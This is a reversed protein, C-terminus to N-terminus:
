LGRVLPQLGTRSRRRCRPRRRPGRRWRTGPGGGSGCRARGPCPCPGRSWGPGRPCSQRSPLLAPQHIPRALAAACSRQRSGSRSSTRRASERAQEKERGGLSARSCTMHALLTQRVSMISECTWRCRCAPRARRLSWRAGGGERRRRERAPGGSIGTCEGRCIRSRRVIPLLITWTRCGVEPLATRCSQSRHPGSM